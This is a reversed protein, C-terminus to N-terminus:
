HGGRTAELHQVNRYQKPFLHDLFMEIHNPPHITYFFFPMLVDLPRLDAGVYTTGDSDTRDADADAGNDAYADRYIHLRTLRSVNVAGSSTVVRRDM